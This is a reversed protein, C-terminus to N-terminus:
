KCKKNVSKIDFFLLYFKLLFFNKKLVKLFIIKKIKKLYLKSKSFLIMEILLLFGCNYLFSVVKFPISFGESETLSLNFLKFHLFIKNLFDFFDPLLKILSM